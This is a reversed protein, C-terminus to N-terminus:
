FLEMKLGLISSGKDLVNVMIKPNKMDKELNEM